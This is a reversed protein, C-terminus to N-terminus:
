GRVADVDILEFGMKAIQARVATSLYFDLDTTRFQQAWARAPHEVSCLSALEDSSVAAHGILHYDGPANWSELRALIEARSDSSMTNDEVFYVPRQDERSDYTYKLGFEKCLRLTIGKVMRHIPHNSTSGMMHSDAHTPTVGMAKVRLIQAKLEDYVDAEEAHASLADYTPYLCGWEDMLSKARTIPGWRLMDWDCTVCLHVGVKLGHRKALAVAEHFWPCPVLFNTSRVIGETMARVTGVNVSHCMGFDDSTVLLRKAM